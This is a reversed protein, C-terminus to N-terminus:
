KHACDLLCLFLFALLHFTCFTQVTHVTFTNQPILLSSRHLTQDQHNFARKTECVCVCVINGLRSDEQEASTQLYFM